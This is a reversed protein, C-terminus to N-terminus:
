ARRLSSKIIEASIRDTGLAEWIKLNTAGLVIKDTTPDDDSINLNFISQPSIDPLVVPAPRNLQTELYSAWREKQIEVDTMLGRDGHSVAKEAQRSPLRISSDTSGSM